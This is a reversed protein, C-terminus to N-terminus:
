VRLVLAEQGKAGSLSAFTEMAPDMVGFHAHVQADIEKLFNLFEAAGHRKLMQRYRVGLRCRTRRVALPTM